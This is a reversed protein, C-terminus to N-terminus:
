LDDAPSKDHDEKANTIRRLYMAASVVNELSHDLERYARMLDEHVQDQIRRLVHIADRCEETSPPGNTKCKDIFGQLRPSYTITWPYVLEEQKVTLHNIDTM